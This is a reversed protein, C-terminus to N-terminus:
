EKTTSGFGGNRVEDSTDDDVKYYPIIIGQCIADGRKVSLTNGDPSDNYLKVWIHGENKKNNYYDSDILGVTNYLQVKYKFGQGSRPLILLCKDSDCEFKIGTPILITQRPRLEFDCVSYIDYGASYKTARQPLKIDEYSCWIDPIDANYQELSIKEFKM